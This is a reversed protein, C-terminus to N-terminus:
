EERLAVIPNVRSVRVAPVFSAALAAASLLAVAGGIAMADRLQV